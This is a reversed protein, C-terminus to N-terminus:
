IHILSLVDISAGLVRYSASMSLPQLDSRMAVGNSSIMWDNLFHVSEPDGTITHTNISSSLITFHRRHPRVSIGPICSIGRATIHHVPPLAFAFSRQHIFVPIAILFLSDPMIASVQAFNGM